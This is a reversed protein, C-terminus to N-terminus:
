LLVPKDTWINSTRGTKTTKIGCTLHNGVFFVGLNLNTLWVTGTQKNLM